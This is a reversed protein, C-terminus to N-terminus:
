IKMKSPGVSRLDCWVQEMGQPTKDKFTSEPHYPVESCQAQNDMNLTKIHNKEKISNNSGYSFPYFGKRINSGPKRSEPLIKPMKSSIKALYLAFNLRFHFPIDACYAVVSIISVDEKSQDPDPNLSFPLRSGPM